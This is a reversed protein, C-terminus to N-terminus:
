DANKLNNLIKKEHKLQKKSLIKSKKELKINKKCNKLQLEIQKISLEQTKVWLDCSKQFDKNALNEKELTKTVIIEDNVEIQEAIVKDLKAKEGSTSLRITRNNSFYGVHANEFYYGDFGVGKFMGFLQYGFNNVNNDLLYGIMNSGDDHVVTYCEGIIMEVELKCIAIFQEPDYTEIFHRIHKSKYKEEINEFFGDCGLINSVLIPYNIFDEINQFKAGLEKLPKRLDNEFQEQTVRMSVPNNFHKM